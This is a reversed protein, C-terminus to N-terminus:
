IIEKNVKRLIYKESLKDEASPTGIRKERTYKEVRNIKTIKMKLYYDVMIKKWNM